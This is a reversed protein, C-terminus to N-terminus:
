GPVRAVRHSEHALAFIRDGVARADDGRGLRVYLGMLRRMNEYKEPAIEDCLLFYKLAGENEGLELYAQGALMAADAKLPIETYLNYAEIAQSAAEAQRNMFLYAYALNYRAPAYDASKEVAAQFQLAAGPADNLYMAAKGAGFYTKADSDGLSIARGYNEQAGKLLEEDSKMWQGRYKEYVDIYYDALTRHLRSDEPYRQILPKFVEGVDFAYMTFKGTSGRVKLIDEGEELDRFAFTTHMISSAFYNMALEAKKLAIDPNSDGGEYNDLAKFASLYKKEAVLRDVNSLLDEITEAGSAGGAQLAMLLVLAFRIRM